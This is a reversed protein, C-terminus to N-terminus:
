ADSIGITLYPQTPTDPVKLATVLMARCLKYPSKRTDYKHNTRGIRICFVHENAGRIPGAVLWWHVSGSITASCRSRCRSRCRPRSRWTSARRSATASASPDATAASGTYSARFSQRPPGPPTICRQCGNDTDNGDSSDSFTSVLSIHSWQSYMRSRARVLSSADHAFSRCLIHVLDSSLANRETLAMKRQRQAARPLGRAQDPRHQRVWSQRESM